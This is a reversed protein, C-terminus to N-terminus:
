EVKMRAFVMMGAPEHSYLSVLSSPLFNLAYLGGLGFSVHRSINFDRIAGVSTKGVVHFPGPQGGLDVLENNTEREFRAFITWLAAPKVTSELLYAWLDPSGSSSGHRYGYAATTSWYRNGGLPETYIASASARTEDEHPALQEPSIQRAWSVQMSLTHLPNWSLRAATSDLAGPEIRYRYQDPERGHFRSAELKFDGHVYGATVVGNTIHTSDLWHHSIPAEPSDLISLRHGFAPPGFAPEGPLGAYLYASDRPGLPHSFSGSLEMFLNHPHQRDILPDRGNATEGTALLLPYGSAGMLPDPSLMARFRVIDNSELERTAATMVMGSIFTKDDGRPGQQRDHVANLSAHTMVMWKGAEIHIGEHVSSDPQWATGSAERTMAYPGLAASMGMHQPHDAADSAEDMSAEPPSAAFAGGPIIM